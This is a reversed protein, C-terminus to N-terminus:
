WTDFGIWHYHSSIVTKIETHSKAYCLVTTSNFYSGFLCLYYARWFQHHNHDEPIGVHYSCVNKTKSSGTADIKAVSCHMDEVKVISAAPEEL